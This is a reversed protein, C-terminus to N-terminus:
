ARSRLSRPNHVRIAQFVNCRYLYTDTCYHSDANNGAALRIVYENEDEFIPDIHSTAISWGSEACTTIRSPGRTESALMGGCEPCSM